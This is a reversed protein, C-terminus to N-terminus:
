LLTCQVPMRDKFYFIHKFGLKKLIAIGESYGAGSRDPNHADTAMTILYGGLERYLEIIWLHPSSVGTEPFRSFNVELAIGKQIMVQLIQRIQHRFQEVGVFIGHRNLFYSVLCTLHACIDINAHRVMELNDKYYATLLEHTQAATLESYKLQSYARKPGTKGEFLPIPMAHISGVVVDFPIASLITENFAPYWMPEGLEIGRLIMGDGYKASLTDAEACAAKIHSFDYIGDSVLFGDYHDTVAMINVGHSRSAEYMRELPVSADHSHDSHTHNDSLVGVNRLPKVQGDTEATHISLIKLGEYETEESINWVCVKGYKAALRALEPTLVPRIPLDKRIGQTGGFAYCTRTNPYPLWIHLKDKPISASLLELNERTCAGGFHIKMDPFRAFLALTDSVNTTSFSCIDHYHAILDFLVEQHPLPMKLIKADLKLLVGAKQAVPLLEEMLPVPTGAFKPHKHIGFDYALLQEYTLEAVALDPVPSGDTLRGTRGITSDHHLVVKLDKTVIPDVEIADYGQAIALLFAPMTNEPAETSVGRHAQLKTM